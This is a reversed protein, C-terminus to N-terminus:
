RAAHLHFAQELGLCKAGLSRNGLNSRGAGVVMEQVESLWGDGFAKPWGGGADKRYLVEGGRALEKQASSADNGVRFRECSLIEARENM